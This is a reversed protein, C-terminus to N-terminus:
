LAPTPPEFGGTAVLVFLAREPWIGAKRDYAISEPQGTCRRAGIAGTKREPGYMDSMAVNPGFVSHRVTTLHNGSAQCRM